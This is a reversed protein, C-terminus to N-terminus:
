ELEGFKLYGLRVEEGGDGGPHLIVGPGSGDAHAIALVVNGESALASCVASYANKTGALGHSFIILPPTPSNPDSTTTSALLPALPLLPATLRGGTFKIIPATSTLPSPISIITDTIGHCFSSRDYLTVRGFSSWPFEGAARMLPHDNAFRRWGELVFDIPRHPFPGHYTYDLLCFM